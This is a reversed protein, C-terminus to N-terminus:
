LGMRLSQSTFQASTHHPIKLKKLTIPIKYDNHVIEDLNSVTKSDKTQKIWVSWRKGSREPGCLKGRNMQWQFTSRRYKWGWERWM